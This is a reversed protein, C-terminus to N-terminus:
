LYIMVKDLLKMPIPEENEIYKQLELLIDPDIKDISHELSTLDLEIVPEDMENKQFNHRRGTFTEPLQNAHIKRSKVMKGSFNKKGASATIRSHFDRKQTKEANEAIFSIYFGEHPEFYFSKDNQWVKAELKRRILFKNDCNRKHADCCYCNPAVESDKLIFEDNQSDYDALIIAHKVGESANINVVPTKKEGVAEILSVGNEPFDPKLPHLFKELNFTVKLGCNEIEDLINSVSKMMYIGEPQLTTKNVLRQFIPTLIATQKVSPSNMPRPIVVLLLENRMQRHHTENEIKNMLVEYIHSKRLKLLRPQIQKLLLRLSNRLMSAIAFAWCLFSKGQDHIM